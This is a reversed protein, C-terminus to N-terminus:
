EPFLDWRINAYMVHFHDDHREYVQMPESFLGGQINIGSMQL